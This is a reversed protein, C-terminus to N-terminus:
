PTGESKNWEVEIKNHYVRVNVATWGERKIGEIESADHTTYDWRDGGASPNLPFSKFTGGEAVKTNALFAALTM